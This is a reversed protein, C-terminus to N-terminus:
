VPIVNMKYHLFFALEQLIFSDTKEYSIPVSVIFKKRRVGSVLQLEASANLPASYTLSGLFFFFRIVTPKCGVCTVCSNINELFKRM